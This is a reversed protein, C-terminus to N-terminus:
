LLANCGHCLKKKQFLMQSRLRPGLIISDVSLGSITVSLIQIFTIDFDTLFLPMVFPKEQFM